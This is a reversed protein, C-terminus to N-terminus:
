IFYVPYWESWPGKENANTVWRAVYWMCTRRQEETCTKVWPAATAIETDTFEALCTPRTESFVFRVELHHAGIAKGWHKIERGKFKLIAQRVATTMKLIPITNWGPVPPTKPGFGMKARQADSVKPNILLYSRAFTAMKKRVTIRAANMTDRDIKGSNPAIFALWADYFTGVFVLLEALAAAPILWIASNTDVIPILNQLFAYLLIGTLPILNAGM